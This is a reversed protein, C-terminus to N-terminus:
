LSAELRDVITKLVKVRAFRKDDAEVLTWPAHDTSTRDVMDAVAQEYAGWKKRNRWDEATIKFRKFRTRERERFRRLQEAKSIQLWFKCLIAGNRVLEAEFGNIEDYARMWDSESCFGEVREVLVRGYWSRDFIVVGRHGPVHRWFRWLYPQAREEDTPAAIPVIRYYRADLAGAVRRITSGKGAADAGEFVLILSRRDFRKGRLLQAFRGQHKALRRDYDAKDIKQSLDLSRVLKVNQVRPNFPPATVTPAARGALRARMADLLVRGVTLERYREDWADIVTWPAEATSTERLIRENVKMLRDYHRFFEWSRKPVKWRTAPDRELAKLRKREREKSLHFWFKVILVGENALMRELHRIEDISREFEAVSTKRFARDLIPMTYWSGFFIGIQGKPPLARWFRFMPPREAEESSPTLFGHNVIHRPDMWENLRQVTEAKGAAEVGGIIVLVPFRKAEFLDYQADLLSARLAPVEREYAEKAVTQGLNASEFM